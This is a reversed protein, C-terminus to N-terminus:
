SRHDNKMKEVYRRLLRNECEKFEKDELNKTSHNLIGLIFLGLVLGFISLFIDFVMGPTM